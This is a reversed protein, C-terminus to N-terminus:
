KLLFIKERRIPLGNENKIILLYQGSQLDDKLTLENTLVSISEFEQVTRGDITLLEAKFVNRANLQSSANLDISIKGTTPNPYIIILESPASNTEDSISATCPDGTDTTEEYFLDRVESATLGRDYLRLDDLSGEYWSPVVNQSYIFQPSVGAVWHQDSLYEVSDSSNFTSGTSKGFYCGDIYVNLSQTSKDFSGTYMHWKADNLYKGSENKKLNNSSGSGLFYDIGINNDPYVFVRSGWEGNDASFCGVFYM